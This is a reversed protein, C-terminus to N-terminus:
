PQSHEGGAQDSGGDSAAPTVGTRRELEELRSELQYIRRAVAFNFRTQDEALPRVYWAVSRRILKKVFIAAPALRTRASVVPRVTELHALAEIPQEAALPEFQVDLRAVLDAPYEGAARRRAVEAKLESVVTAADPTVDLSSSDPAPMM